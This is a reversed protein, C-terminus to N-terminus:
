LYYDTWIKYKKRIWDHITYTELFEDIEELNEM